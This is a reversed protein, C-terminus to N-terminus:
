LYERSIRYIRWLREMLLGIVAGAEEEQLLHKENLRFYFRPFPPLRFGKLDSWGSGGGLNGLPYFRESARTSETDKMVTLLSGERALVRM